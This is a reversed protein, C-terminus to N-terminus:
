ISWEPYPSLWYSVSSTVIRRQRKNTLGMGQTIGTDTEIPAKM